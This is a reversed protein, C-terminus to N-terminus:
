GDTLRLFTRAESYSVEIHRNEAAAIAVVASSPGFPDFVRLAYRASLGSDPVLASRPMHAADYSLMVKDPPTGLGIGHAKLAAEKATWWRLFIENRAAAPLRALDSAEAATLAARALADFDVLPRQPEVDIGVALGWGLAVGIYSGAHSLSLAPAPAVGSRVALRPPLNARPGAAFEISDPRIGLARGAVIRLIAHAAIFRVYDGRFRFRGAREREETDLLAEFAAIADSGILGGIDVIIAHLSAPDSQALGELWTEEQQWIPVLDGDSPTDSSTM